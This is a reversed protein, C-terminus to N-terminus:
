FRGLTAGLSGSSLGGGSFMSSAAGGGSYAGFAASLGPAGALAARSGFRRLLDSTDRTVSKQLASRRNNEATKDARERRARTEPDEEPQKPTRM